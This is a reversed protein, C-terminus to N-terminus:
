LTWGIRTLVTAIKSNKWDFFECLVTVILMADFSWILWFLNTMEPNFSSRILNKKLNEFSFVYEIKKREFINKKRFKYNKRFIKVKEFTYTIYNLKIFGFILNGLNFFLDQLKPPM